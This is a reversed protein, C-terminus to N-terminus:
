FWKTRFPIFGGVAEKRYYVALQVVHHVLKKQCNSCLPINQSDVSSPRKALKYFSKKAKQRFHCAYAGHFFLFADRPPAAHVDVLHIFIVDM